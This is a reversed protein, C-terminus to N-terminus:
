HARLHTYSVADYYSVIYTKTAPNLQLDRGLDCATISVMVGNMMETRQRKGKIYTTNETTQGSITQKTKIKVDAFASGSITLITSLIFLIAKKMISETRIFYHAVNATM